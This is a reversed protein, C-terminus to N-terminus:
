VQESPIRIQLGDFSEHVVVQCTLRSDDRTEYAFELMDLELEDPEGITPWWSKDIYAHCTACSCAGGCEAVIGNVDNQVAGEMVTQGVPVDIVVHTGGPQIYTISPM